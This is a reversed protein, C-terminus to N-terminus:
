ETVWSRAADLEDSGFARVEGPMMWGLAHIAHHIWEADTVIAVREWSRLHGLGLQADKLAGGATIGPVDGDLVYLVRVKGDDSAAQAASFAPILVDEYDAASVRGHAQVGVVGEPLGDILELM